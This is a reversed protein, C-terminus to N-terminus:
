ANTLVLPYDVARQGGPPIQFPTFDQTVSMILDQTRDTSSLAVALGLAYIYSTAVNFNSTPSIQSASINYPIRFSYTAKNGNYLSPDSSEQIPTALLPVWLAGRVTDGDAITVFTSRTTQKLDSNPPNLTGPNAGSDGFRAYLHTILSPGSRLLSTLFIGMAGNTLSNHTIQLTLEKGAADLERIVIDGINILKM